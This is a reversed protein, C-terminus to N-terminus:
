IAPFYERVITILEFFYDINLDTNNGSSLDLLQHHM